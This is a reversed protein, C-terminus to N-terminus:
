RALLVLVHWRGHEPTGERANSARVDAIVPQGRTLRINDLKIQQQCRRDSMEEPIKAGPEGFPQAPATDWELTGAVTISKAEFNFHEVNLELGCPLIDWASPLGVAENVSSPNFELPHPVHRHCAVKMPQQGTFTIAALAPCPLEGALFRAVLPTASDGPKLVAAEGAPLSLIVAHLFTQPPLQETSTGPLPSQLLFTIDTRGDPAAEDETAPSTSITAACRVGSPPIHLGTVFERDVWSAQAGYLAPHKASPHYPVLELAEARMLAARWGAGMETPNGSSGSETELRSGPNFESSGLPILETFRDPYHFQAQSSALSRHGGRCLVASHDCLEAGGEEVMSRLRAYLAADDGSSSLLLAAAEERSLRFTLAHLRRQNIVHPLTGGAPAPKEGDLGARLFTYHFAPEAEVSFSSAPSPMISLLLTRGTWTLAQTTIRHFGMVPQLTRGMKGSGRFDPVPWPHLALLTGSEPALNIDLPQQPWGPILEGVTVEAEFTHGLNQSTFSYPFIFWGTADAESETPYPFERLAEVKSRQGGRVPMTQDAVREAKGAAVDAALSAYLSEDCDPQAADLATAAGSKEFTVVRVQVHRVDQAALPLATIILLLPLKM